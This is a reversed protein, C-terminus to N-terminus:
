HARHLRALVAVPQALVFHQGHDEQEEHGSMLRGDVQNAISHESQELMRGLHFSKSVIRLQELRRDLLQQTIFRWHVERAFPIRALIHGDGADRDPAAFRDKRQECRGVTVFLLERARVIEIKCPLRVAVDRKPQSHM